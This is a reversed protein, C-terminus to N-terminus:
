SGLLMEKDSRRKQRAHTTDEQQMQSEASGQGTDPLIWDDTHDHGCSAHAAVMGISRFGYVGRACVVFPGCIM